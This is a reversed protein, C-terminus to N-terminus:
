TLNTFINNYYLAKNSNTLQCHKESGVLASFSFDTLAADWTAAFTANRNRLYYVSRRSLGAARAARRVDGTRGLIAIFTARAARTWRRPNQPAMGILM